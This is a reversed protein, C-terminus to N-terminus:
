DWRVRCGNAALTQLLEQTLLPRVSGILKVKKLRACCARLAVEYGKASVKALNVLKADQLRTLNGMMMCLGVDSVSCYSLNIQQLNWSYFALSWFGADGINQCNKIDLESLKRCGSALAILGTDTVNGNSRLELDSLEELLGLYVMGKDTVKTCYSLNLKRMKKCGTALFRLGDDGVNSCRYLDLEEIKCHSAIYSLGTDSIDTCIGLKLCRLESCKSLNDLGIDNVHCETLDLEELLHCSSGLYSFSKETLLSCSELKLCLLKRCSSAIASIAVDTIDDCCTLDLMKLNPRGYVLQMIGVDNVGECKSLGVEVLFLCNASIIQFFSDAVRAGNVKITKLYKLDKLNHFVDPSLELFYYGANLNQLGKCGRIVSILGSSSVHECRTIDLVQLSPCGNGLFHLGGDDVLGCGVMLLKELEKLNSISRLSENSIKLYSISLHKLHLCKKSLLDIGLDTIELCWKLSIKELKDCGIAIKALGVDTVRLCKDMKVERLEAGCSLAAAERDGFQYCHSVDVSQLGPCSGVLVELGPSRLSTTRCLVVSKVRQAWGYCSINNLLASITGDCIRPCVSFDLTDARTYNRLLGPIFEPRLFKLRTRHGSEVGHFVKCTARFSKRDSDNSLCDLVRELLDDTLLSLILSSGM